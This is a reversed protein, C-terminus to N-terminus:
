LYVRVYLLMCPACVRVLDTTAAMLAELRVYLDDSRAALGICRGFLATFYSLSYQYM